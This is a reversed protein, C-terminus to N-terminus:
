LRVCLLRFSSFQVALQNAKYLGHLAVSGANWNLGTRDSLVRSWDSWIVACGTVVSLVVRRGWGNASPRCISRTSYMAFIHSAVACINRLSISVFNYIIWCIDLAVWKMMLFRLSINNLYFLLCIQVWKWDDSVSHLLLSNFNSRGVGTIM